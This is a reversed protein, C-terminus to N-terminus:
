NFFLVKPRTDKWNVDMEKAHIRYDAHLALAVEPIVVPDDDMHYTCVAMRPRFRLITAAGGELAQREAGEIDMKIFDVREIGLEEIISDLPRVPVTISHSIGDMHFLTPRSTIHDHLSLELKSEENWVGAKVITVKGEAIEPALNRELSIINDPNPEISIVRAAGRKLAWRSFVGIHAGADIVTDGPQITPEHGQYTQDIDIEWILWALSERGDEKGIWFDGLQTRYQQFPHGEIEEEALLTLSELLDSHQGEPFFCHGRDLAAFWIDDWAVYPQRGIAKDTVYNVRWWTSCGSQDGRSWFLAVCVFVVAFAWGKWERNIVLAGIAALVFPIGYIDHFDIFEGLVFTLFMGVLLGYSVHTRTMARSQPLLANVCPGEGVM